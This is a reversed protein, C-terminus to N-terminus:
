WWYQLQLSNSKKQAEDPVPEEETEGYPTEEMWDLKGSAEDFFPAYASVAMALWLGLKKVFEDSAGCAEAGQMAHGVWSDRQKVTFRHSGRPHNLPLSVQQAKPRMPCQKARKHTDIVAFSGSFGRGLNQFYSTNHTEDLLTSAVRRGHEFASQRTDEYRTDFLVHMRPNAFMRM